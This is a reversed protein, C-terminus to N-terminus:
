AATHLVTMNNFNKITHDAGEGELLNIMRLNGRYSSLHLATFGEDNQQNVWERIQAKTIEEKYVQNNLHRIYLEALSFNNNYCALHLVVNQSLKVHTNRPM